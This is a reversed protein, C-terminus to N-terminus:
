FVPQQNAELPSRQHPACVPIPTLIALALVWNTAFLFTMVGIAMLSNTIFFPFGDVLFHWVRDTDQTVRSAIAGVPKRDFYRMGLYEIARYTVSRLDKSIHTALYTMTRGNFVQLVSVGIAAALWVAMHALLNPVTMSNSTFGDVLEKQIRPPVLNLATSTISMVVLMATAKRYPRLFGFIRLMTKGRNICIPCLGDKEPLLRGCNECRVKEEALVITFPEGKALQEIGRAADSFPESFALSYSIAAIRAGGTTELILRGGSVLPEHRARAIETMPVRMTPVGHEDQVRVERDTVVLRRIGFRGDETLDSELELLTTEKPIAPDSPIATEM